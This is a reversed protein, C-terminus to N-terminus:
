KHKNFRGANKVMHVTDRSTSDACWPLNPRDTMRTDVPIVREVCVM